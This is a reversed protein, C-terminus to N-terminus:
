APDPDDESRAVVPRGNLLTSRKVATSSAALRASSLISAIQDKTLYGSAENHNERQWTKIVVRTREGFVGDAAGLDYGLTMLAEQIRQRDFDLSAERTGAQKHQLDQIRAEALPAFAGRKGFHELYTQFSTIDDSNQISEWYVIELRQSDNSGSPMSAGISSPGNAPGLNLIFPGRLSSSEWPVQRADTVDIVTNRVKHMLQSIELGPETLHQLMAATFPSHKEKGDAALQGPATAYAIFTGVAADMQGLGQGVDMSRSAGLSSRFGSALPNNRCADLFVLRTPVAAEMLQLVQGMDVLGLGLDGESELVSDTPFLYNRGRFEMGHGAYYFLGAAAGKLARDFKRLATRMGQYDLDIAEIVEINLDRLHDAMARADNAPNDLRDGIEQYAGNGIVLAVRRDAPESRSTIPNDTASFAPSIVLSILILALRGVM